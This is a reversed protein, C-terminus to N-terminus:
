KMVSFSDVSKVLSGKQQNWRSDLSTATVLYISPGSKVAKSYFHLKNGEMEGRYEYLLTNTKSSRNVLELKLDQFQKTSLADYEEITGSFPQKQINVNAAFGDSPALFFYAVQYPESGTNKTVPAEVSIGLDKSIFFNNPEGAHAWAAVALLSIFVAAIRM